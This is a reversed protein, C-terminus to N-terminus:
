YANEWGKRIAMMRDLRGPHTKSAQPSAIVLMVQQSQSLTAGMRRLVYGAFEDAELETAPRSGENNSTHGLLHHGMEHAILAVIAWKNGTCRDIWNVFEPNYLIKKHKHVLRAEMNNVDASSIEFVDTFGMTTEISEM